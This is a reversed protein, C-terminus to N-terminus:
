FDTCTQLDCNLQCELADLQCKSHLHSGIIFATCNIALVQVQKGHNKDSNLWPSNWVRAFPGFLGTALIVWTSKSVQWFMDLVIHTSTCWGVVFSVNWEWHHRTTHDGWSFTVFCWQLIWFIMKDLPDALDIELLARKWHCWQSHICFNKPFAMPTEPIWKCWYGVFTVKEQKQQWKGHRFQKVSWHVCLTKCSLWTIGLFADLSGQLTTGPFWRVFLKKQFCMKARGMKNKPIFRQKGCHM